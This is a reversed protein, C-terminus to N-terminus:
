ISIKAQDFIGCYFTRMMTFGIPEESRKSNLIHSDLM